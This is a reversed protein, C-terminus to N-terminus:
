KWVQIHNEHVTTLTLPLRFSGDPRTNTIAFGGHNARSSVYRSLTAQMALYRPLSPYAPMPGKGALFKWRTKPKLLIDKMLKICIPCLPPGFGAWQRMAHKLLHCTLKQKNKNNDKETNIIKQTVKKRAQGTQRKKAKRYTGLTYAHAPVEVAHHPERGANTFSSKKENEDTKTRNRKIQEPHTGYTHMCTPCQEEGESLARKLIRNRVPHHM